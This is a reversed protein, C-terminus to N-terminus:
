KIEVGFQKALEQVKSEVKKLEYGKRFTEYHIFDLIKNFIKEATEKSGEIKANKWISMCTQLWHKEKEKIKLVEYEERSLVVSDEPLKRYGLIYLYEQLTYDLNIDGNEDYCDDWSRIDKAMEEIQKARQLEEIEQNLLDALGGRKIVIQKEKDKM